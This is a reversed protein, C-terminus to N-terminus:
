LVSSSLQQPLSSCMLKGTKLGLVVSMLAACLKFISLICLSECASIGEPFVPSITDPIALRLRANLKPIIIQCQFIIKTRSKYLYM